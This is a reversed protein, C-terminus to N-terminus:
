EYINIVFFLFICKKNNRKIIEKKHIFFAFIILSRDDFLNNIKLDSTQQPDSKSHFSRVFNNNNNNLKKKQNLTSSSM